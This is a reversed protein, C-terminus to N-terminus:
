ASSCPGEIPMVVEGVLLSNALNIFQHAANKPSWIEHITLYASKSISKRLTEDDILSIVKTSFDKLNNTKFLLGNVGDKILYPAAGIDESVVSACGNSMAENLVAGWGEKRNSTFIFINSKKMKELVLKNSLNGIQSINKELGEILIKERIKEYLLGSGIMTIHFKKKKEKLVKALKVVLEPHKLRIYRSVWLIEIKENDKEKIQLDINISDVSTFYGWKFCKKPYAFLSCYDKSAYGGTSLLYFEKNRYRTHRNLIHYIHKLNFVQLAGRFIREAYRFTLKNEKLREKVFIYSAEGLIVVDSRVSLKLAEDYLDHNLYSKIHYSYDTRYDYGGDVFQAPTAMTSIFKFDEGLLAYLENCFPIQHHNLFNSILTVKM